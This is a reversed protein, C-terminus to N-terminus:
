WANMLAVAVGFAGLYYYGTWDMWVTLTDYYKVLEFPWAGNAAQSACLSCLLPQSIEWPACEPGDCGVREFGTRYLKCLCKGSAEVPISSRSTCGCECATLCDLHAM